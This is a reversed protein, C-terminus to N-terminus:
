DFENIKKEVNDFEYKMEEEDVCVPINVGDTETALNEFLEESGYMGWLSSITM